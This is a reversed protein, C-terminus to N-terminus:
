KSNHYNTERARLHLMCFIIQASDVIEEIRPTGIPSDLRDGLEIDSLPARDDINGLVQFREEDYVFPIDRTGYRLTILPM